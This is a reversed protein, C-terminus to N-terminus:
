LSCSAGGKWWLCHAITPSSASQKPGPRRNRYREEVRAPDIGAPVTLIRRVHMREREPRVEAGETPVPHEAEITLREGLLEVHVEEPAFGPLEARVMFENEKEETTLGWPYLREPMEMLPLDFFRNFLNEFSEPILGM